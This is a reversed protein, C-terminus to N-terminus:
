FLMDCINRSVAFLTYVCLNRGLLFWVNCIAMPTQLVPPLNVDHKLKFVFTIILHFENVYDKRVTNSSACDCVRQICVKVCMM